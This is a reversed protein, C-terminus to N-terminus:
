SSVATAGTGRAAESKADDKKSDKKSEAPEAAPTDGSKGSGSGEGSNGSGSGEASKGSGSSDGSKGSSGHTDGSKGSGKDKDAPKSGKDRFDTVYWGTGKLQFGAASVMKTFTPKRCEPCETLLPESVKQLYENQYGCSQCRYEYIPM